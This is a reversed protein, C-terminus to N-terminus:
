FAYTVQGSVIVTYNDYSGNVLGSQVASPPL